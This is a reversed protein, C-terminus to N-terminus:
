SRRSAVQEFLGPYRIVAGSSSVELIGSYGTTPAEYAYENRSIRRYSQPLRMFRMAPFKLWAAPAEAHQGVKLSLRRLAIMNTAPTFNLDVDVCGKVGDLSVGDVKWRGVGASRVRIDIEKRGLFGSIKASRTRWEGDVSVEYNFHCPRGAERFVAAGALRWGDALRFLRCSDHGPGDVRRWFFMGATKQM